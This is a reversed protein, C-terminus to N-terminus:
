ISRGLLELCQCSTLETASPPVVLENMLRFYKLTGWCTLAPSQFKREEIRMAFILTLTLYLLIM